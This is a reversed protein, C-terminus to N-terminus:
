RLSEYYLEELLESMEGQMELGSLLGGLLGDTISAVMKEGRGKKRGPTREWWGIKGGYRSGL